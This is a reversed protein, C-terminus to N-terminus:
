VTGKNVNTRVTFKNKIKVMLIAFLVTLVSTVLVLLGLSLLYTTNSATAIFPTGGAPDSFAVFVEQNKTGLVVSDQKFTDRFSISQGPLLLVRPEIIKQSKTVFQPFKEQEYATITALVYSETTNTVTGKCDVENQWILISPTCSFDIIALEKQLKTITDATRSQQLTSNSDLVFIPLLVEEINSFKDTISSDKSTIKLTPVGSHQSCRQIDEHLQNRNITVLSNNSIRLSAPSLHCENTVLSNREVSAMHLSINDITLLFDTKLTIQISEKNDLYIEAPTATIM